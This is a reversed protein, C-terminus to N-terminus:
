TLSVQHATLFDGNYIGQHSIKTNSLFQKQFLQLVVDFILLFNVSTVPVKIVLLFTKLLM